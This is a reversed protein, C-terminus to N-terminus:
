PGPAPAVDPDDFTMEVGQLQAGAIDLRPAQFRGDLPPLPSAGSAAIWDVIRVPSFRGAFIADDRRLQLAAIDTFGPAGSYALTFPLPADSAALPPPLAPWARPWSQLRGALRLDLQRAFAIDGRAALDPVLGQGLTSIAAPSLRLGAGTQRLDGGVGLAFPVRTAGSQYRAAVGLKMRQVRWGDRLAHLRGSFRLQAPMRWTPAQVEIRGAIGFATDIAPQLLAARFAFPIERDGGRYRGSIAADVPKGPALYPLDLALGAVTWGPAVVQGDRLQLGRTLTPVRAKGPPRQQLWHQLAPLDIVPHELAIREIVLESGRARITSWPLSLVIRDARLLPQAAGPERAVVGRVDLLPTDRLRYVGSRASIELGLSRGVADLILGSARQPRSIWAIAALALLAAVLAIALWRM